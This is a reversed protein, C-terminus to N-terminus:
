PTDTKMIKILSLSGRNMAEQMLIVLRDHSVGHIMIKFLSRIMDNYDKKLMEMTKWKTGAKAEQDKSAKNQGEDNKEDTKADKKEKNDGAKAQADKQEQASIEVEYQRQKIMNWMKLM